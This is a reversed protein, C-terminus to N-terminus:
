VPMRMIEQYASVLHNRVETMAQFSLGARQMSVMVEALDVDGSRLFREGLAAASQQADNVGGIAEGLLAAFDPKGIEAPTPGAGPAAGPAVPETAVQRAQAALQRLLSANGIGSTNM